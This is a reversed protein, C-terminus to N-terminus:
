PRWSGVELSPTSLSVPPPTRKWTPPPTRRAEIAVPSRGPATILLDPRKGGSFVDPPEPEVTASGAMGQLIRALDTNAVPEYITTM